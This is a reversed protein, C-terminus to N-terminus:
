LCIHIHARHATHMAHHANRPTCYATHLASHANHPTCHATCPTCQTTHLTCQMNHMAHHATHLTCHMTHIAHHATCPTCHATHPICPQYGNRDLTIEGCEGKVFTLSVKATLQSLRVPKGLFSTMVSYEPACIVDGQAM